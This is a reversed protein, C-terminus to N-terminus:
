QSCPNARALMAQAPPLDPLTQGPLVAQRDPKASLDGLPGQLHLPIDLALFGTPKPDSRLVRALRRQV